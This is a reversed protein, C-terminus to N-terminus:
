HYLAEIQKAYTDLIKKRRPKLSRTILGQAELSGKPVTYHRRIREHESLRSNAQNIACQIQEGCISQKAEVLAVLFPKGHGYVVCHTFVGHRALAAEVKTPSINKGRDLVILESARGSLYFFAGKQIAIDGTKVLNHATLIPTKNGNLYASSRVNTQYVLIENEQSLTVQIGGFAKGISGLRYHKPTNCSIMGVESIGYGEYIPLGWALLEKKFETNSPSAGIIMVKAHGGLRQLMNSQLTRVLKRFLSSSFFLNPCRRFLAQLASNWPRPPKELLRELIAQYVAPVTVLVSPAIREPGIIFDMPGCITINCGTALANIAYELHVIHSFPSTILWRDHSGVEFTDIFQRGFAQISDTDISFAKLLNGGTTGSTFGVIDIRPNSKRPLNEDPTEDPTPINDFSVHPVGLIDLKPLEDNAAVAFDIQLDKLSTQVEEPSLKEPLAIIRYGRFFCTLAVLLWEYGTPGCIVCTPKASRLSRLERDFLGVTHSIKALLMQYTIYQLRRGIKLQITSETNTKLSEFLKDVLDQRPAGQEASNRNV